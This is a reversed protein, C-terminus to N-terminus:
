LDIKKYVGPCYRRAIAEAVKLGDMAASTIGGAYGAGEGCPYLGEVHSCLSDKDRLIRVPSSTRAEVGLLPVDAADFGPIQGGFAHMGEMLSEEIFSPFLGRLSTLNVDGKTDPYIRGFDSSEKGECFDGFLQVPIKGQGRKYAEEELRRQFAMASLPGEGLFDEANVTVVVASNATKADRLSYSMGNVCRRGEESSANVVYGGPCMCFSYVGRRTDECTHTLKYSAPGLLEWDKEGYLARNIDSQLHAVRVGVAFSKGEMPVQRSFLMEFTDRSSHGIALVVLGAPIEEGTATKVGVLRGEKLLLDSMCTSFRFEGGMAMIQGRLSKVVMTLVDTGLHPKAEYLIEPSAGAKVFRKLVEGNRGYPDKVQTNLKGDSFTGAGGEGFQVNSEPNLKGGKWFGEVTRRRADIEEGRELVLPAFGAHALYWACFLGAPGSGVVIPRESLAEEGLSPFVYPVPTYFSVHRNKAAQAVKKEKAMSVDATYVFLKHEKDRADLSKRKVQLAFADRKCHLLGEIKRFLGEEGEQIPVKIDSVRIM